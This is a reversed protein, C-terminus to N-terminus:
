GFDTIDPQRCNYKTNNIQGDPYDIKTMALFSAIASVRPSQKVANAIVTCPASDQLSPCLYSVGDNRPVFCDGICAPIAEDRVIVVPNPKQSRGKNQNVALVM